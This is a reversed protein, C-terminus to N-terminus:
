NVRGQPRGTAEEIEDETRPEVGSRAAAGHTGRVHEDLDDTADFVRGCHTCTFAEAM